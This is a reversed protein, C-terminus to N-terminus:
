MTGSLSNLELFYKIDIEKILISMKFIWEGQFTVLFNMCDLTQFCDFPVVAEPMCTLVKGDVSDLSFAFSYSTKPAQKSFFFLAVSELSEAALRGILALRPWLRPIQKRVRKLSM